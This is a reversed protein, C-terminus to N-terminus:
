VLNQSIRGRVAFLLVTLDARVNQLDCRVHKTPVPPITSTTGEKGLVAPSLNM